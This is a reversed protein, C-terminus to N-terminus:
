AILSYNPIFYCYFGTFGLFSRIDTINWPPPWDAMGKVKALDMQVTRDELIVGLFEIRKQEFVCKEPKLYLDHKKLKELMQHVCKEHFELNDKTAILIDDMYVILWGEAIEKAFITNMMTQFTAPSNTLGFFMVTPEFLGQNMIFAAKHENGEKIHINNYGWRIDVKTFRKVNQVCAILELILPLPYCNKITWENLQQYDQVPQLKGDKKKIFFFPAAYPSKSPHIYGKAQQEQIFKLLAKQEDQTLQYVKGPILSPAGPKLKIAHDWIHPEPFRHSAEKSFVLLHHHYKAPIKGDGM